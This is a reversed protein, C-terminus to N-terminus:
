HILPLGTSRNKEPELHITTTMSTQAEIAKEIETVIHHGDAISMHNPLRVHFTLEKHNIYNHLHFHHAHLQRQASTEAIAIIKDILENSPEEGLIVAAADRIVGYAAWFIMLAVVMALAADIWWFYSGVFIGALVVISSIADSRHHWGDAIVSGSNHHKGIWFAYQALAEKIIISAVTAVIALIGYNAPQKTQLREIGTTLFSWAVVALFGGILIATILESRGHGFPHEKDAPKRSIRAGIVVFVSSISDSLTHWADATLAISGSVLGAWLKLAFLSINTFISVWGETEPKHNNINLM